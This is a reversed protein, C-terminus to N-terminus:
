RKRDYGSDGDPASNQGGHRDVLRRCYGTASRGAQRNARTLHEDESSISVRRTDVQIVTGLYGGDTQVDDGQKFDFIPM